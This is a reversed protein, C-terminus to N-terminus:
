FEDTSDVDFLAQEGESQLDLDLGQAKLANGAVNGAITVAAITAAIGVVLLLPNTEGGEVAIEAGLSGSAVYAAVAPLCGLFTGLSFAAWPVGSLGFM